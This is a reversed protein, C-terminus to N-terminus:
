QMKRARWADFVTRMVERQQPKWHKTRVAFGAENGWEANSDVAAQYWTVAVDHQGASWYVLAFSYPAWKPRGGHLSVARQWDALAAEYEGLDYAAWGRSWLVHREMDSGAESIVIAADFDRRARKLDGANVFLHARHVLATANKPNRQVASNIARRFLAGQGPPKALYNAANDDDVYTGQPLVVAANGMASEPTALLAALLWGHIWVKM